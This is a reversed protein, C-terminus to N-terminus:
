RNDETLAELDRFFSPYTVAAAEADRITVAGSAGLAAVALAMAVRHDGHSDVTGGTLGRPQPEVTLGAPLEKVRAGLRRLEKAMVAIRDTEKERAQPVNELTIPGPAYCGLAALAPLADPMGNLDFTGGRTLPGTVTLAPVSDRIEERITCGLKRLIELVGRDGQVDQPDLGLVTVGSTGMAGACFWFTASSYDGPLTGTVPLYHQGAPIVFRRYSQREMAIGQRQLWWCTMDVYPHENLVTPELITESRLGGAGAMILPAALLLASLFQSTPSEVPVAAAGGPKLPGQVTYPARPGGEVVAGLSRLVTLLPGASRSRISQDGDFHVQGRRLAALATLLYLTTGSNGVNISVAGSATEPAGGPVVEVSIGTATRELERCSAGLTTIAAICSRADASDLVNHIVSGERAMAAILLARITHSKSSPM